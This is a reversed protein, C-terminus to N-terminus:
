YDPLKNVVGRGALELGRISARYSIGVASIMMFAPWSDPKREGEADLM